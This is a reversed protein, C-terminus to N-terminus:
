KLDKLREKLRIEKKEYTDKTENEFKSLKELFEPTATQKVTDYLTKGPGSEVSGTVGFLIKCFLWTAPRLANMLDGEQADPNNFIEFDSKKILGYAKGHDSIIVRLMNLLQIDDVADINPTNARSFNEKIFEYVKEHYLENTRKIKDQIEKKLEKKDDSTLQVGKEKKEAVTKTKNLKGYFYGLSSEGYACATFFKLAGKADKECQTIENASFISKGSQKVMAEIKKVSSKLPECPLDFSSAFLNTDPDNIAETLQNIHNEKVKENFCNPNLCQGKSKKKIEMDDFLTLNAVTNFRCTTCAGVGKILTESTIDFPAFELNKNMRGIAYYINSNGISHSINEENKNLKEDKFLYSQFAVPTRAIAIAGEITIIGKLYYERWEKILDKLALRKQIYGISKNTIIAIDAIDHSGSLEFFFEAEDIANMQKRHINESLAIIKIEEDNLDTFIKAPLETLGAKIAANLRREGAILTYLPTNGDAPNPFHVAIPMIVGHDKISQTLENMEASDIDILKRPNDGVAIESIPIVNLKFDKM